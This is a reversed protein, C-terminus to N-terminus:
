VVIVMMMKKKKKKRRRRRRRRKKKKKKKRRRRRGGGGEEEEEEEEEEKKKKTDRSSCNQNQKKFQLDSGNFYSLPHKISSRTVQTQDRCSMHHFFFLVWKQFTKKSMCVHCPM